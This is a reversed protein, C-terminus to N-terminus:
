ASEQLLLKGAILNNALATILKRAELLEFLEPSHRILGRSVDNPDPLEIELRVKPDDSGNIVLHWRHDRLELKFLESDLGLLRLLIGKDSQALATRYALVNIGNKKLLRNVLFVMFNKRLKPNHRLSETMLNFQNENITTASPRVGKLKEQKAKLEKIKSALQTKENEVQKLVAESAKVKAEYTNALSTNQEARTRLDFIRDGMSTISLSYDEEIESKNPATASVFKSSKRRLLADIEAEISDGSVDLAVGSNTYSAQRLNKYETLLSDLQKNLLDLQDNFNSKQYFAAAASDSKIYLNYREEDHFPQNIVWELQAIESMILSLEGIAKGSLFVYELEPLIADGVLAAQQSIAVDLIYKMKTLVSHGRATSRRPKGLSDLPLLKLEDADINEILEYFPVFDLLEMAIKKSLYPNILRGWNEISPASDVDAFDFVGFFTELETITLSPKLLNHFRKRAIDSESIREKIFQFIPFAVKKVFDDSARQDFADFTVTAAQSFVANIERPSHPALVNTIGIFGEKWDTPVGDKFFDLKDKYTGLYTGLARYKKLQYSFSSLGELERLNLSRVLETIVFLSDKVSELKDLLVVFFESNSKTIKEVREDLQAVASLIDYQGRELDVLQSKIEQQGALLTNLREAMDQRFDKVEQIIERKAARVEHQVAEIAKMMQENASESGHHSFAAFVINAAAVYGMPSTPGGAAVISLSAQSFVEFANAVASVEKLTGASVGLNEALLVLQQANNVYESTKKGFNELKSTLELKLLNKPTNKDPFHGSKIAELQQSPTLKGFLVEKIFDADGELNLLHSNTINQSEEIEKQERIIEESFESLLGRLKTVQTGLDQLNTSSTSRYKEFARDFDAFRSQLEEQTQSQEALDRFIQQVIVQTVKAQNALLISPMSGDNGTATQLQPSFLMDPSIRSDSKWNAIRSVANRSTERRQNDAVERIAFARLRDFMSLLTDSAGTPDPILNGFDVAWGTGLDTAREVTSIRSMEVAYVALDTNLQDGGERQFNIVAREREVMCVTSLSPGLANLEPSSVSGTSM